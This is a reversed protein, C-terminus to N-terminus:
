KAALKKAAPRVIGLMAEPEMMKNVRGLVAGDPSMFVVAPLTDAKYRARKEMNADTSETVDFKLPVFNTTIEDYVDPDGFTM